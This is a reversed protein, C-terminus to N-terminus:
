KKFNYQVERYFLPIGEKTTFTPGSRFSTIIRVVGGDTVYSAGKMLAESAYRLQDGVNDSETTPDINMQTGKEQYIFNLPKTGGM